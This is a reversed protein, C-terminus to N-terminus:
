ELIIKSNDEYKKFLNPDREVQPEDQSSLITISSRDSILRSLNNPDFPLRSKYPLVLAGNTSFSLKSNSQKLALNLEGLNKFYSKLLAPLAKYEYTIEM